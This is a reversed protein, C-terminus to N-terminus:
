HTERRGEPPVYTRDFLFAALSRRPPLDAVGVIGAGFGAPLIRRLTLHAVEESSYLVKGRVVKRPQRLEKRKQDQRERVLVEGDYDAGIDDHVVDHGGSQHRQADIAAHRRAVEGQVGDARACPTRRPQATEGDIVSDAVAGAR